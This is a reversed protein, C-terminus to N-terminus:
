LDQASRSFSQGRGLRRDDSCIPAHSHRDNWSSVATQPHRPHGCGLDPLARLEARKMMQLKVPKGDVTTHFKLQTFDPTGEMEYQEADKAKVPPLPFSITLELDKASQNTYRYKVRIEDQSIYLDESDMSISKNAVLEIGGLHIAAESDNALAPTALALRPPPLCSQRTCPQVAVM